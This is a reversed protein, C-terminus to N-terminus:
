GRRMTAGTGGRWAYRERVDQRLEVGLGPASPPRDRREHHRAPGGAARGPASLGLDPVGPHLRQASRHCTILHALAIRVDFHLERLTEIM